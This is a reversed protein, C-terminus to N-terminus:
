KAKVRSFELLFKSPLYQDRQAIHKEPCHCGSQNAGQKTQQQTGIPIRWRTLYTMPPEGVPETFLASFASRSLASAEALGKVTWRYDPSQHNL